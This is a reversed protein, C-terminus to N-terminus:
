QMGGKLKVQAWREALECREIISSEQALTM